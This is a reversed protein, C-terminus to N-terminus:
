LAIENPRHVFFVQRIIKQRSIARADAERAPLPSGFRIDRSKEFMRLGMSNDRDLPLPDIPDALRFKKNVRKWWYREFADISSRSIVNGAFGDSEHFTSFKGVQRARNLISTGFQSNHIVEPREVVGNGGRRQFKRHYPHPM